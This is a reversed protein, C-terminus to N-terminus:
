KWEVPYNYKVFLAEIDLVNAIAPLHTFSTGDLPTWDRPMVLICHTVQDVKKYYFTHENEPCLSRSRHEQTYPSYIFLRHAPNHM